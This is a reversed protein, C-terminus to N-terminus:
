RVSDFFLRTKAESKLKYDTLLVNSLKDGKEAATVKWAQRLKLLTISTKIYFVIGYTMLTVIPFYFFIFDIDDVEAFLKSCQPIKRTTALTVLQNNGIIILFPLGFSFLFYKWFLRKDSDEFDSEANQAAKRLSGCVNLCMMLLWAFGAIVGYFAIYRLDNLPSCNMGQKKAIAHDVNIVCMNFHMLGLCFIYCLLLRKNIGSLKEYISCIM